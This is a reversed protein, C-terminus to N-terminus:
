GPVPGKFQLEVRVQQGGVDVLGCSRSIDRSRGLTLTVDIQDGLLRPSADTVLMGGPPVLLRVNIRHEHTARDFDCRGTFVGGWRDSGLVNGNRLALLLSEYGGDPEAESRYYLEYLGDRLM